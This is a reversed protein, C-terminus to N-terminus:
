LKTKLKADDPRIQVAVKGWTRRKELDVLGEAVRELPYVTSYVM